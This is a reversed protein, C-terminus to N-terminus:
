FQVPTKIAAALRNLYETRSIETAGMSATHDNLIQLDFLLFGSNALRQALHVLAVKSADRHRYFMSEGAFFAGIAVGYIGGVLESGLWVEVSHAFGLQHLTRYAAVMSDTIWTGEEREGCAIM